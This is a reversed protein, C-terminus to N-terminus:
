QGILVARVPSGDSGKLKLPIAFLMYEGPAVYTLNLGELPIIGAGLLILHIAMPADSPGVSQSEVGVLKVHSREIIRAADESLQCAGKIILRECCDELIRSVYTEDMLGTYEVVTCDGLFVDAPIEDISKGDAIFHCPADVHTGNHVCMSINTVNVYDTEISSTKVFSPARDGPWVRCSFVEQSIDIIQVYMAEQGYGCM